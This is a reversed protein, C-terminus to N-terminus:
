PLSQCPTVKSCVFEGSQFRSPSDSDSCATVGLALACITACLTAMRPASPCSKRVWSARHDKELKMKLDVWLLTRVEFLRVGFAESRRDRLLEAKLARLQESEVGGFLDGLDFGAGGLVLVLDVERELAFRRSAHPRGAGIVVHRPGLEASQGLLEEPAAVVQQRAFLRGAAPQRMSSLM